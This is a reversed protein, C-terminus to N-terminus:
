CNRFLIYRREKDHWIDVIVSNYGRDKYTDTLLTRIASENIVYEHCRWDVKNENEVSIGVPTLKDDITINHTKFTNNENKVIKLWRRENQM